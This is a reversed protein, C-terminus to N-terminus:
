DDHSPSLMIELSTVIVHLRESEDNITLMSMSIVSEGNITAHEYIGAVTFPMNDQRYIGYWHPKDDNYKPEFITEVPILCFQNKSWAHRFSPKTAVTESRANYTNKVKKLDDAWNPVLGFRASRWELGRDTSIIIPGNHAPFIDTKYDFTPEYLNLLVARNRAIPEYNACM